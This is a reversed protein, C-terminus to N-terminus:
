RDKKEYKSTTFNLPIINDFDLNPMLLELNGPNKNLSRVINDSVFSDISVEFFDTLMKITEISPNKNALSTINYITTASCGIKRALESISKIGKEKM